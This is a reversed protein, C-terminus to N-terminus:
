IKNTRLARLYKELINRTRDDKTDYTSLIDEIFKRKDEVKDYRNKIMEIVFDNSWEENIDLYGDILSKYYKEILNTKHGFKNEAIMQARKFGKEGLVEKLKLEIEM